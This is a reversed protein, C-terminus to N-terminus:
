ISDRPVYTLVCRCNIVNGAGGRPDGPRDMKYGGVNFEQDLLITKGDVAAHSFRTREDEVANWKKMLEIGLDVQIKQATRKSAFMAAGHTETRAITAARFPTFNKARLISSIFTTEPIGVASLLADTLIEVIDNRTTESTQKAAAAGRQNIWELLFFEWASFKTEIDFLDGKQFQREVYLFFVRITKAYHKKFIDYMNNAHIAYDQDSIRRTKYLINAQETIFRNKERAVDRMFAREIKDMYSQQIDSM